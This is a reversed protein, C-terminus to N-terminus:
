FSFRLQEKDLKEQFEVYKKVTAEDVGVTSSFFGPSWFINHKWYVKSLWPFQKRAERSSNSKMKGVIASVSYKPPIVCVMHVHDVQINHTEIEIEPHYEHIALLQKEVCFKLEGKLIRKRYKPIWVLHYHHCYAGHASHRIEMQAM